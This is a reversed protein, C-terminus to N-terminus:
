ESPLFLEQAAKNNEERRKKAHAFLSYIIPVIILSILMSFFLGGIISIGLPRWIESGEGQSIALPLMGLLTTFSTMLIPRLRSRGGAIIADKISYGRSVLLNIFDVLVISNKVAIGVLMVIGIGSIINISTNTIALAILVGTIAFPISFMIIFPERMSEFQSAMVIYTLVMILIFLLGLDRFTDAMDKAAGSIEVFIEPPIDLTKLRSNIMNTAKGLDTGSLSAEVRVVRTKNEHEINPTTYVERVEAVDNVRVLNGQPGRFTINRIDDISVLNDDNYKVIVDYENGEERYKTATFGLVRNRIASSLMATNMGLQALKTRDPIVQIELRDKDRSITVDRFGPQTKMYSSIQDAIYNTKNIDYGFINVVVNNGGGGMATAAMQNRSGGVSVYSSAIIPYKTLDNRLSDVIEFVSRSREEVSSLRITMTIIYSGAKQIASAMSGEEDIGISTSILEIEPYKQRMVNEFDRALKKSEDIRVGQPIEINIGIRGNDQEPMFESRIFNLLSLSGVFLVLGASLILKKHRLAYSLSKAYWNDFRGWFRTVANLFKNPHYNYYLNSKLIRSSLMPTLSLAALVSITITISVIWGLQRFVVGTLGTMLTLPFFVAVIVLTSAVVALGVERTAFVAAEMPNSGREIHKTINELVVIADDVVMGIAIALASLSIINLTGGIAYLFIFAAILSVPITLLVIFTSRWRGLFIFVVLTVFIFAYLLTESLNNISSQIFESTDIINVIKVDSPLDKSLEDMRERVLNAIQVTNAGSQKQVMLRVGVEGDIREDVYIHKLTDKVQAVDRLYVLGASSKSVVIDKVVDSNKFEGNTRIPFEMQGVEMRGAPLALNEAGIANGVQELTLGYSDLKRPDVRVDVIRVPKGMVTVAGVGDIRSLRETIREDILKELAPYSERATVGYIVVPIMSSNFKFLTPKEADEPLTNEVLSLLDRVDNSSQDMNTGYEFEILIFSINDKSTSTVKKLNQLSNLQNELPKTVNVEIDEASAGPYFTIVSMAPIDMDPMLDIPLNVLSFAGLVIIAVFIMITTVPKRVSESYISM